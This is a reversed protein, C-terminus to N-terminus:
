ARRAIAQGMEGRVPPAPEDGAAIADLAEQLSALEVPDFAARAYPDAGWTRLNMAHLTAMRAAPLPLDAVGAVEPELGAARALAGLERGIDFRQGYHAQLDTVLEYYRRIAPHESRLSVTEELVLRGGPALAAAFARVAAAPDPLHTLLFRSYVVGAPSVPFPPVTVDHVHFDLAPLRARAQAVLRESRDLGATWAPRLAAAVLETTFGPGCGVDIAGGEVPGLRALLRASSEAYLEALRQLRLAALDGDGFTYHQERVAGDAAM